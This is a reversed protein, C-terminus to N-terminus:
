RIFRKLMALNLTMAKQLNILNFQFVVSGNKERNENREGKSEIKMVPTTMAVYNCICVRVCVYALMCVCVCVYMYKGLQSLIYFVGVAERCLLLVGM